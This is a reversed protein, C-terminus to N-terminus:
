FLGWSVVFAKMKTDIRREDKEIGLLFSGKRIKMEVKNTTLLLFRLTSFQSLNERKIIRQRRGLKVEVEGNKESLKRM